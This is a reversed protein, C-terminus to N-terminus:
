RRRRLLCLMGLGGLLASSPEPVQSLSLANWTASTSGNTDTVKESFNFQIQGSGTSTVSFSLLAGSNLLDYTSFSSTGANVTILGDGGGSNRGGIAVFDYQTFAALGTFTILSTGNANYNAYIGDIVANPEDFPDAGAPGNVGTGGFGAGTSNGTNGTNDVAVSIGSAAGSVDVLATTAVDIATGPTGLSNWHKSDGAPNSISAATSWDILITAASAQFVSLMSSGALALFCRLEPRSKM